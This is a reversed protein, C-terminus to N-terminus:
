VNWRRLQVGTGRLRRCACVSVYWVSCRYITIDTNSYIMQVNWRAVFSVITGTAHVEDTMIGDCM